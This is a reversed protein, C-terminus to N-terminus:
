DDAKQRRNNVSALVGGAIMLAGAVICGAAPHVIGAGSSIAMAGCVILADPVLKIFKKM